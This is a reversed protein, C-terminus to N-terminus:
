IHKLLSTFNWRLIFHRTKCLSVVPCNKCIIKKYIIWFPLNGLMENLNEESDRLGQMISLATTECSCCMFFIASIFDFHGVPLWKTEIKSM